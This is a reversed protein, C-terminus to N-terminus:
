GLFPLDYVYGKEDDHNGEEDDREEQVCEWDVRDLVSVVVSESSSVLSLVGFKINILHSRGEVDEV